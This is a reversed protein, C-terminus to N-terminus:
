PGEKETHGLLSYHPLQFRALPRLRQLKAGMGFSESRGENM